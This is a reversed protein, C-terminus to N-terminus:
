APVLSIVLTLTPIAYHDHAPANPGVPRNFITSDIGTIAGHDGFVINQGDGADITDGQKGGFVLDDYEGPVEATSGASDGYLLDAGPALSDRNARVSANVWPIALERTIV